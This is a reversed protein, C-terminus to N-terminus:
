QQEDTGGPTPTWFASHDQIWWVLRRVPNPRGNAFWAYPCAWGNTPRCLLGDLIYLPTDLVTAAIRRASGM